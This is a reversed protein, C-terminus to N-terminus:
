DYIRLEWAGPDRYIMIYAPGCEAKIRALMQESKAKADDLDDASFKGQERGEYMLRCVLYDGGIISGRVDDTALRIRALREPTM